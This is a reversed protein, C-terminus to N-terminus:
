AALDGFLKSDGTLLRGRFWAKGEHIRIEEVAFESRDDSWTVVAFGQQWDPFTTYDDRILCLCGLEWWAHFGNYDRHEYVGRRHTHGSMGSKGYKRYEAKASEGSGSRVVEGHTLILRDFLVDHRPYDVM